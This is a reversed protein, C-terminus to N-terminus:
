AASRHSACGMRPYVCSGNNFTARAQYNSALTENCGGYQCMSRSPIFAWVATSADAAQRWMHLGTTADYEFWDPRPKYNTFRLTGENVIWAWMFNDAQDDDCAYLNYRCSQPLEVAISTYGGAHRSASM